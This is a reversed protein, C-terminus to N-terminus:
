YANSFRVRTEGLRLEDRTRMEAVPHIQTLHELTHEARMISTGNASALDVVWLKGRRSVVFAHLRSMKRDDALAAEATYSTATRVKLRGLLIGRTLAMGGMELTVLGETRQLVRPVVPGNADAMGGFDDVPMADTPKIHLAGGGVRLQCAASTVVHYATPCGQPLLGTPTGLDFVEVHGVGPSGPWVLVLAHRPRASPVHIHAMTSKGVILARPADDPNRSVAVTTRRVEGTALTTNIAYTTADSAVPDLLASLPLAGPRPAIRRESPAPRPRALRLTARAALARTDFPSDSSTAVM